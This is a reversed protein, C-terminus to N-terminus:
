ENTNNTSGERMEDIASQVEKIPVNIMPFAGSYSVRTRGSKRYM